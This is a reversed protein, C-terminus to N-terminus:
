MTTAKRYQDKNSSLKKQMHFCCNVHSLFNSIRKGHMKFYIHCYLIFNLHHVFKTCGLQPQWKSALGTILTPLAKRDGNNLFSTEPPMSNGFFHVSLFWNKKTQWYKLYGLHTPNVTAACMKDSTLGHLTGAPSLSEAKWALEQQLADLLATVTTGERCHLRPLCQPHSQRSMLKYSNTPNVM